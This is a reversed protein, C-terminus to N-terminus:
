LHGEEMATKVMSATNRAGLKIILNKRHSDVTLASINLAKGIEINTMGQSIMQLVELERNSIKASSSNDRNNNFGCFYTEGKHIARIADIMEGPCSGKVLCGNVGLTLLRDHYRNHAYTSMILLGMAPHLQKIEKIFSFCVEGCFTLDLMVIDVETYQLVHLCENRSTAIGVLEIGPTENLIVTLGETLLPFNEVLLVKILCM